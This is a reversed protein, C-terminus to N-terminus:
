SKGHLSWRIREKAVLKTRCQHDGNRYEGIALDSRFLGLDQSLGHIDNQVDEHALWSIKRSSNRGFFAAWVYWASM